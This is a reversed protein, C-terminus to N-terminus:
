WEENCPYQEPNTGIEKLIRPYTIGPVPSHPQKHGKKISFIWDDGFDFCYYLKYKAPLPYIEAFTTEYSGDSEDEYLEVDEQYTAINGRSYPNPAKGVFFMSLHDCDFDVSKLIFRHLKYLSDELNFEVVKVCEEKLYCGGVSEITLEAIM